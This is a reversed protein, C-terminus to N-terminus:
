WSVRMLSDVLGLWGGAVLVGIFKAALSRDSLVSIASNHVMTVEATVCILFAMAVMGVCHVEVELSM